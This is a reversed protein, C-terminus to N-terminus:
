EGGLHASRAGHPLNGHRASRLELRRPSKDRAAAALQLDNSGWEYTVRSVPLGRSDKREPDLTITNRDHAWWAATYAYDHLFRKFEAGYFSGSLNAYTVPTMMYSLLIFGRAYSNRRDPPYFDQVDSPEDVGPRRPRVDPYGITARSGAM